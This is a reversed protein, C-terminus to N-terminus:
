FVAITKGGGAPVVFPGILQHIRDSLPKTQSVPLEEEDQSVVHRGECKALKRIRLGYFLLVTTYKLRAV